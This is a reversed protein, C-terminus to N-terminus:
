QVMLKAGPLQLADLRADDPAAAAAGPVAADMRGEPFLYQVPEEQRLARQAAAAELDFSCPCM